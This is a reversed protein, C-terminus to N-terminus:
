RRAEQFDEYRRCLACVGPDHEPDWYMKEGHQLDMWDADPLYRPTM